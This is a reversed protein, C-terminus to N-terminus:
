RDFRGILRRTDEMFEEYRRRAEAPLPLTDAVEPPLIRYDPRYVWVPIVTTAFRVPLTDRKVIDIRAVLGGDCYRKQQNSVFNGLSYLVVRSSDAEFPQIVHPHSGAIIDVGHRQLFGALRRQAADPRREYENGWHMCAIVADVSDRPISQLDEAMRLTDIRHVIREQPVPLGNTGYTYNVVALRIGNRELRLIRNRRYDTSDSFVGTHRIGRADLEEVTTRIGDSGGDCCHNNALLAVDVGMEKLADAVAAPSRFCPYGTYTRNRTLTTELNVFALDAQRFLPAIHRFSPEYDFGSPTRAAAIQPTHQMWDGAFLLSLRRVVPQPEPAAAAAEAPITRLRQLYLINAATAAVILTAALLPHFTSRLNM